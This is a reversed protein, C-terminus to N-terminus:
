ITLRELMYMQARIAGGILYSDKGLTAQTIHINKIYEGYVEFHKSKMMIDLIGPFMDFLLGGVLIKDPDYAYVINNIAISFYRSADDVLEIVGSEGEEYKKSIDRISTISKDIACARKLFSKISLVTDLCGKRGCNCLEGNYDISIHGIEGANNNAGRLIEGDLWLGVGVGYGIAIYAINSKDVIDTFALEGLLAIKVDNDVIVKMNFRESAYKAINENKWGFQASLIIEGTNPNIIGPSIFTICEVKKIINPYREEWSKFGEYIKDTYEEMSNEVEVNITKTIIIKNGLNVVAMTAKDVDINVSLSYLTNPNIHLMKAPRGRGALIEGDEIVIGKDMLFGIIRTISMKTSNTMQALMVRTIEKNRRILDVILNINEIKSEEIYNLNRTM